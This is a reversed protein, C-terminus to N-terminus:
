SLEMEEIEYVWWDDEDRLEEIHDEADGYDNFAKVPDSYPSCPEGKTVVYVSM